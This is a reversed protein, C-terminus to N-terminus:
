STFFSKDDELKENIFKKFWALTNLVETVNKINFDPKSGNFSVDKSYWEWGTLTAAILANENEEVEIAKLVKGRKQKNLNFDTIRRKIQKMRDDDPSMLTVRIGINEDTVPHTVEFTNESPKLSALDLM